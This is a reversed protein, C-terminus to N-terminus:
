PCTWPWGQPFGGPVSANSYCRKVQKAMEGIEAPTKAIFAGAKELAAVKSPVSGMGRQVIAGTHGM